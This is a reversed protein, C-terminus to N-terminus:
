RGLYKWELARMEQIKGELIRKDEATEFRSLLEFAVEDQDPSLVADAEAFLIRDEKYIHNRLTSSVWNACKVFEAIHALRLDKEMKEILVREQTHELAMHKVSRSQSGAASEMAPFLITEEKAQHHADAFWRLFDLIKGVDATEIAGTKELCGSMADM